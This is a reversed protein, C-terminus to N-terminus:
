LLIKVHALKAFTDCTIKGVCDAVATVSVNLGAFRVALALSYTHRVHEGTPAFSTLLLLIFFSIAFLGQMHQVCAQAVKLIIEIAIEIPHKGHILELVYVYLSLLELCESSM